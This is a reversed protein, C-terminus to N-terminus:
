WHQISLKLCIIRRSHIQCIDPRSLAIQPPLGPWGLCSPPLDSVIFLVGAVSKQRQGSCYNLLSLWFYQQVVAPTAPLILNIWVFNLWQLQLLCAALSDGTKNFPKGVLWRDSGNHGVPGGVGSCIWLNTTSEKSGFDVHDLGEQTSLLLLDCLNCSVTLSSIQNPRWFSVLFIRIMSRGVFQMLMLLASNLVKSRLLSPPTRTPSTSTTTVISCICCPGIEFECHCVNYVGDDM